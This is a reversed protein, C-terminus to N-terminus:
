RVLVATKLFEANSPPAGAGIGAYRVGGTYVLIATIDFTTGNGAYGVIFFSLL